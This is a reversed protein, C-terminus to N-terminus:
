SADLCPLRVLLTTESGNGASEAALHGGHQEVITKAGALGIGNGQPGHARAGNYPGFSNSHENACHGADQYHVCLLAWSGDRCLAVRVPADRSSHTLASDIVSHLTRELRRRDGQVRVTGGDPLDLRLPAAQAGAASAVIDAAVTRLVAGLDVVEVHLALTQGAQLRAMDIIDDVTAAMRAVGESLRRLQAGLWAADVSRAAAASLHAAILEAYGQIATLPTRLEHAAAMLFEDRLRVADEAQV